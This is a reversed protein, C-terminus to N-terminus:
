RSVHKCYRCKLSGDDQEQYEHGSTYPSWPWDTIRLTLRVTEIACRLGTRLIANIAIAKVMGIASM